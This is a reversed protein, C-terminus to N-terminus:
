LKLGLPTGINALSFIVMYRTDDPTYKTQLEVSWCLATYLLSINAENTEGEAISHEVELETSWQALLQARVLANIQEINSYENFSYDVNFFDGRSNTYQGELSHTTFGDGYVSIDTEYELYLKKVPTFGLRLSVDSFPEDSYSDSLEYSQSIKVWGFESTGDANSFVNFFNDIGYTISNEESIYDVSDFQPLDDQDVEPIYNYRVYPHVQHDFGTYKEGSLDFNRLLTTAVEFEFDATLRNQTDDNDWEADGYEQVMYYTDRVGLEARSELYQSLPVSSSISPHIDIRHAGIGDERYYNVYDTDWEFSASSEGIPMVGSFQVDPLTWLEDGDDEKAEDTRVDNVALMDIELSMGSWSKLFKLTNDRTDDTKNEFGRGFNEQFREDTDKFGTYGSNFETLYDRDSVVDLDLRALWDNGIVQDAKGRVWYRDSNTHTYSTDTYYDTTQDDGSLSDNLYSAMFTGKIEENRVYRFEAGPMVGRKEYIEPFLTVDMSDSLNIFFPVNFSFGGNSSHSIEPFVFGTQRTNKVPVVMYPTYFVPIGKINFTANKLVAYGDEKISTDSSAFSWPPKEGEKVECTIVWGEEIHYTNIGTKEIKKGELHLQNEKRIIVANTFSGTETNLDVKGQEAMLTDEERVVRVNGKAKISQLDVDYTLWDAQIMLATKQQEETETQEEIEGATIDEQKVPEGLLEAWGSERTNTRVVKAPIKIRKELVINGEAVISKPEDYRIIRDASINWESTSVTDALAAAPFSILSSVALTALTANKGSCKVPLFTVTYEKYNKERQV